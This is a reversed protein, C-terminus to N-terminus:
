DFVYPTRITKKPSPPPAVQRPKSCTQYELFDYKQGLFTWQFSFNLSKPRSKGFKQWNDQDEFERNPPDGYPAEYTRCLSKVLHRQPMVAHREFSAVSRCLTEAQILLQVHMQLQEELQLREFETFRPVITDDVLLDGNVGLRPRYTTESIEEPDESEPAELHLSLIETRLSSQSAIANARLIDDTSHFLM